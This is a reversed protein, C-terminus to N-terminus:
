AGFPSRGVRRPLVRGEVRGRRQDLMFRGRALVDRRARPSLGVTWMVAAAVLGAASAALVFSPWTRPLFLSPLVWAGALLLVAVIAPRALALAHSSASIGTRRRILLPLCIMLGAYTLSLAFAVGAIGWVRSLLAGSVWVFVGGLLLAAAKPKFELLSDLVIVDVRLVLTEIGALVLLLNVPQGGFLGEGVWLGLFPRNLALVGAGIATMVALALQSMEVRVQQVRDWAEKGCLEGVGANGSTLLQIVFESTLRMVIGTTSYVAAAPPGLMLGVLLIDSALLLGSLASSFNWASLRTFAFLESRTPREVGFWPLVRWAVWGGVAGNLMVALLSAAAVGPLGWGAWVAAATMAGGILIAAANFGMAKYELNQGRLVNAPFSLLQDLAVALCVLGMAVRVADLYRPATRIFVPVIWVLGCGVLLLIPFTVTWLALAAGIQRKKESLDPVHQRLALTYKLTGMPRLDSLALYGVSQQIMMWAGYLEKGLGRIVIPTVLFGAILRAGQQLLGSLITLLARWTLSGDAGTGPAPEPLRRPEASAPSPPKM